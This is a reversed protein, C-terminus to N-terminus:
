SCKKLVKWVACKDKYKGTKELATKKTQQSANTLHELRYTLQEFKSNTDIRGMENETNENGIIVSFIHAFFKVLVSSFNFWFGHLMNSVVTM